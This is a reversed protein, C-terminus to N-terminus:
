EWCRRTLEKVFRESRWRLGPSPRCRGTSTTIARFCFGLRSCSSVHRCLDEAWRCALTHHYWSHGSQYDVTLTCVAEFTSGRGNAVLFVSSMCPARTARSQSYLELGKQPTLQVAFVELKLGALSNSRSHSSGVFGGIGLMALELPNHYAACGYIERWNLGQNYSLM